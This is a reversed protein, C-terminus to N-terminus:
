ILFWLMFQDKPKSFNVFRVYEESQLVKWYNIKGQEKKKPLSNQIERNGSAARAILNRRM